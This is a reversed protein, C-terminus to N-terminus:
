KCGTRWRFIRSHNIQKGCRDSIETAINRDSLGQQRLEIALPEWKKRFVDPREIPKNSKKSFRLGRKTRISHNQSSTNDPPFVVAAIVDGLKKDFSEYNEEFPQEINHSRFLGNRIFRDRVIALLICNHKRAESIAIDLWFRDGDIDSTEEEAATWGVIYLGLAVCREFLDLKQDEINDSSKVSTRLYAWVRFPSNVNRKSKKVIAEIHQIHNSAIGPKRNRLKM